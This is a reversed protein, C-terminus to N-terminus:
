QTGVATTHKEEEIPSLQNKKYEALKIKMQKAAAQIRKLTKNNFQLMSFLNKLLHSNKAM